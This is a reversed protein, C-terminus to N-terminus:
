SVLFVCAKVKCVLADAAGARGLIERSAAVKVVVRLPAIHAAVILPTVAEVRVVKRRM